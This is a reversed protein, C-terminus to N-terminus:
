RGVTFLNFLNADDRQGLQDLELERGAAVVVEAVHDKQDADMVEVLGVQRPQVGGYMLVEDFAQLLLAALVRVLRALFSRASGTRGAPSYGPGRRTAAPSAESGKSGSRSRM